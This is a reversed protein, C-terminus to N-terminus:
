IGMLTIALIAGTNGSNVVPFRTTFPSGWSGLTSYNDLVQDFEGIYYPLNIDGIESLDIQDISLEFISWGVTSSTAQDVVIQNGMFEFIVDGIARVHLQLKNGVLEEWGSPLLPYSFLTGIHGQGIYVVSASADELSPYQNSSPSYVGSWTLYSKLRKRMISINDIMNYGFRSSLANDSDTRVTGFPRFNETTVYQNKQGAPIPSNIRKFRAMISFLEVEATSGDGQLEITLTGYYENSSPMVITVSGNAIGNTSTALNITSNATNAGVDLTIKANCSSSSGYLRYNMVVELENHELSVLPIRWQSMETFSSSDQIFVKDSYAQSLVNHCAGTAFSYNISQAMRDPTSFQIEKGAVTSSPDALITTADYTNGM